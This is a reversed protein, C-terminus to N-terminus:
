VAFWAFPEFPLNRLVSFVAWGSLFVAIARGSPRFTPLRWGFTARAAWAIYAYILFPVAFVFVLHHQAAAPLDGHLLFWFARTGGCGPCDFGTTLKFLCTPVADAGGSTPNALLTYATAGALCTAVGAPLAWAPAHQWVRALGSGFRGRGDVALRTPPQGEYVPVPQPTTSPVDDRYV